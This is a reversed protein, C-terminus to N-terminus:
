DGLLIPLHTWDTFAGSADETPEDCGYLLSAMGVNLAARSTLAGDKGLKLAGTETATPIRFIVQNAAGNNYVHEINGGVGQEFGEWSQERLIEGGLKITHSGRASDLFYTAAATYQNRERDLQWKRHGGLIELTGSDRFFYPEESNAITPVPQFANAYNPPLAHNDGVLLGWM